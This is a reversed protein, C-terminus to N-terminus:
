NKSYRNGPHRLVLGNFELESLAATIKAVTIQTINRIADITIPEQLSQLANLVAEQNKDIEPFLSKQQPTKATSKKEWNLSKIITEANLVLQAKNKHIFANCGASMEDDIRGPLAFVERNLDFAVNATSLAGGKIASEVVFTGDALAAVVRNRELFHQRFPKIGSGYQSVLLGGKRIISVALDRHGAPYVMDLGHALVATTTVGQQLATSHAVSDIGYALGSVINLDDIQQALETIFTSCHKVGQPTPRRTGVVSLIHKSSLNGKGLVFIVAPADPSNALREPYEEDTALLARVGSRKLFQMEKRARVLGEERMVRHCNPMNIQMAQSLDYTPLEAFERYSCGCADFLRLKEANMGTTM